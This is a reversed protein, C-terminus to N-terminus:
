GTAVWRYLVDPEHEENESGDTEKVIVFGRREYFRRAAANQQFTWLSLDKADVRAVELLATGIGRGQAGPLVYLQNIWGEGFAVIGVLVDSEFAGWVACACFVREHYFRRDEDPTHLGSLWPLRQDFSARHVVAARDM